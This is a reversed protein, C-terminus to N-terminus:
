RGDLPIHASLVWGRPERPGATLTGRLSEVRETLGTLGLGAHTRDSPRADGDGDDAVTVHLVRDDVAVTVDVSSASPAHRRVNTLAEVVIRYAVAAAERPVEAPTADLRVHVGGQSFRSVLEPLDSLVGVPARAAGGPDRLMHVTRDMSALARLGATEIRGFTEAVRPDDGALVMRAAQAQAVIESVDHAVFDHLDSALDLRQTHRAEAVARDRLEDMHRPYWAVLGAVVGPVLWILSGAVAEVIAGPPLYRQVTLALALVAAGGGTLAARPPSWRFALYVHVALLASELLVWLGQGENSAGPRVVLYITTVTISLLAAAGAMWPLAARARPWLALLVALELCLAVPTVVDILPAPVLLTGMGLALVGGAAVARRLHM